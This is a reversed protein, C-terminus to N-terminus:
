ACHHLPSKSRLRMRILVGQSLDFVNPRRASQAVELAAVTGVKLGQVHVAPEPGGHQLFEGRGGLAVLVIPGLAAADAFGLRVVTLRLLAAGGFVAQGNQILEVVVANVPVVDGAVM